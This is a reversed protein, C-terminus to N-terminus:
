QYDGKPPAELQFVEKDCVMYSSNQMPIAKLLQSMNYTGPVFVKKFNTTCAMFSSFGVPSELDCSLLVPAKDNASNSLHNSWLENSKDVLDGSTYSTSKGNSFAIYAEDDASNELM